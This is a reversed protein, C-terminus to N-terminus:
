AFKPTFPITALQEVANGEVGLRDYIWPLILLFAEPEGMHRRGPVLRAEKPAGRELALVYDDIPFIQDEVGNVLLLRACRPKNLTGDELLSFKRRADNRFSEYDDGYGFKVALAHPLDFPYELSLSAGLWEPDFMHHCGGGLAVFGTALPPEVHAARIAHYAGTSFAWVVHRSADLAPNSRIWTTLSSLVRDGSSPDSPLGPCDGTGPIELVITAIGLRAFGPAWVCLETRYGDLGTWLVVVPSPTTSAPICAYVPIIPGEGPVANVHPVRIESM